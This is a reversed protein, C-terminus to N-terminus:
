RLKRIITEDLVKMPGPVVPQHLWWLMREREAETLKVAFEDAFVLGVVDGDNGDDTVCTECRLDSTLPGNVSDCRRCIWNDQEILAM